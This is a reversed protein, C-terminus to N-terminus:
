LLSRYAMKKILYTNMIVLTIEDKSIVFIKILGANAADDHAFCQGLAEITISAM